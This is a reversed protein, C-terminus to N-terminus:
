GLPLDDEFDFHFKSQSFRRLRAKLFYDNIIFFSGPIKGVQAVEILLIGWDLLILWEWRYKKDKTM